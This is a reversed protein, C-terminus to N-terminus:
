ALGDKATLIHLCYLRFEVRIGRSFHLFIHGQVACRVYERTFFWLVHRLLMCVHMWVTGRLEDSPAHHYERRVQAMGAPQEGITSHKLSTLSRATRSLSPLGLDHGHMKRGGAADTDYRRSYIMTESANGSTQQICSCCESEFSHGLPASSTAGMAGARSYSGSHWSM